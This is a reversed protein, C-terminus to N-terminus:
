QWGAINGWSDVIVAYAKGDAMASGRYVPVGDTTTALTLESVDSYGADAIWQRAEAASIELPPVISSAGSGTSIGTSIGTGTSVPTIEAPTPVRVVQHLGITSQSRAPLSLAAEQQVQMSDAAADSVDLGIAGILSTGGIITTLVLCHGLNKM